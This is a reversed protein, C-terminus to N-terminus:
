FNMVSFIPCIEFPFKPKMQQHFTIFITTTYDKAAQKENDFPFKCNPISKTTQIQTWLPSYLWKRARYGFNMCTEYSWLHSLDLLLEMIRTAKHDWRPQKKSEAQQNRM